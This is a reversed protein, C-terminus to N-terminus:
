RDYRGAKGAAEALMSLGAQMVGVKVTREKGGVEIKVEDSSYGFGHKERLLQLLYMYDAATLM